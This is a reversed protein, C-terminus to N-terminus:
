PVVRFACVSVAVLVFVAEQRGVRELLLTLVPCRLRTHVPLVDALVDIAPDGHVQENAGFALGRVAAGRREDIAAVDVEDGPPAFL